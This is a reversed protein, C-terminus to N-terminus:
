DRGGEGLMAEHGLLGGASGSIAFMPPVDIREVSRRVECVAVGVEGDGKRKRPPVIEGERQDVVREAALPERRQAAATRPQVAHRDLYRADVDEVVGEEAGTERVIAPLMGVGVE